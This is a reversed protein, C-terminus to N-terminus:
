GLNIRKLVDQFRPESHLVNYRPDTKVFLAVMGRADCSKELSLLPNESDGLGLYIVALSLFDITERKARDFLEELIRKAEPADGASAHAHGLAGVVWSVGRRCLDVPKHQLKRAWASLM